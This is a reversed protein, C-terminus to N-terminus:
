HAGRMPNDVATDLRRVDLKIHPYHPVRSYLRPASLHCLDPNLFHGFFVLLVVEDDTTISRAVGLDFRLLTDDGGM